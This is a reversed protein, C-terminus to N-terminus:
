SGANVKADHSGHYYSIDKDELLIKNEGRNTVFVALIYGWLPMDGWRNVFICNTRDVDALCRQIEQHAAFYPVNIIMFNTYPNPVSRQLDMQYNRFFEHMGIIVDSTDEGIWSPSAFMIGSGSYKTLVSADMTQLICDEDIRIVYEYQAMHEFIGVSWFRCMNKYGVSFQESLETSYCFANAQEIAPTLFTVIKFVMPMLQTANQIHDQHDQSINGEHFIVVDINSKDPLLSYFNDYIAQNRRLLLQYEDLTGYGKTLVVIANKKQPSADFKELGINGLKLMGLTCALLAVCFTFM